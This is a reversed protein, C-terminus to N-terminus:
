KDDKIVRYPRDLGAYTVFSFSNHNDLQISMVLTFKDYVVIFNETLILKLNSM